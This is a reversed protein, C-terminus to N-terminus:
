GRTQLLRHHLLLSIGNLVRREKVKNLQVHASAIKILAAPSAYEDISYVIRILHLDIYYRINPSCFTTHQFKIRLLNRSAQTTFIKLRWVQIFLLQCEFNVVFCILPPGLQAIRLRIAIRSDHIRSNIKRSLRIANKM